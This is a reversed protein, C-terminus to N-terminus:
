LHRLDGGDAIALALVDTAEELQREDILVSPLFRIGTAGAPLTLVGRDQLAKILATAPRKLELAVM